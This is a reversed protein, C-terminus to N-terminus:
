VIINLRTGLQNEQTLANVAATIHAPTNAVATNANEIREIQKEATREVAQDAPNEEENEDPQTVVMMDGHDTDYLVNEEIRRFINADRTQETVAPNQVGPNQAPQTRDGIGATEQEREDTYPAGGAAQTIQAATDTQDRQVNNIYDTQNAAPQTTQNEQSGPQRVQQPNVNADRDAQLVRYGADFRNQVDGVAM